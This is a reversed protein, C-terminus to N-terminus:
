SQAYQERIRPWEELLAAVHPQLESEQAALLAVVAQSDAGEAALLEATTRLHQARRAIAAQDATTAHYRRVTESIDSLYRARAPPVVTTLGTPHKTDVRPLLGSGAPVWTHGNDSSLFVGKGLIATFIQGKPSIAAACVHDVDTLSM